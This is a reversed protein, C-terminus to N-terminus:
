LSEEFRLVATSGDRDVIDCGDQEGGASLHFSLRNVNRITHTYNGLMIQIDPGGTGSELDLGTLPLGDELWYDHGNEFVGLRTTRGNNKQNFYRLFESWQQENNAEM